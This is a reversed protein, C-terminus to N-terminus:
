DSIMKRYIERLQKLHICESDPDADLFNASVACETCFHFMCQPCRIIYGSIPERVLELVDTGCNSCRNQRRIKSNVEIHDDIFKPIEFADAYIFTRSIELEQM